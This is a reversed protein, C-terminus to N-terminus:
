ERNKLHKVPSGAFIGYPHLKEHRTVLSLAGIIAGDPIQAGYFIQSNAGILVDDGIEIDDAIDDQKMYKVDRSLKHTSGRISSNEAIGSWRGMKIIATSSIRCYDGIISNDGLIFKGEKTIEFVVGKGIVVNNGIEFNSKPIDRFTPFQLCKLNKGVKCGLSKLYLRLIFGNFKYRFVLLYTFFRTM